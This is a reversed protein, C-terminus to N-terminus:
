GEGDFEITTPHKVGNLDYYFVDYGQVKAPTEYNVLPEMPWKRSTGGFRRSVAAVAAYDSFECLTDPYEDYFSDEDVHEADFWGLYGDVDEYDSQIPNFSDEPFAKDMRILTKVLDSLCGEDKGKKFPGFTVTEIDGRVTVAYCDIVYADNFGSSNKVESKETIIIM